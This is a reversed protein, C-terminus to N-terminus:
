NTGYQRERFGREILLGCLVIASALLFTVAVILLWFDLNSFDQGAIWIYLVISAVIAVVLVVIGLIIKWM